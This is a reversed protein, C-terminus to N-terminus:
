LFSRGRDVHSVHPPATLVYGQATNYASFRIITSDGLNFNNNLTFGVDYLKTPLDKGPWVNGVSEWVVTLYKDTSLDSDFDETDNVPQLDEKIRDKSLVYSFNDWTLKKSDYHIRLGLGTLSNNGDSVDYNVGLTIKNGAIASDPINVFIQQAKVDVVWPDTNNNYECLNDCGNGNPDNNADTPDNPDLGNELEWVDPMGDGDSDVDSGGNTEVTLTGNRITHSLSISGLDNSVAHESKILNSDDAAFNIDYSDIAMNSAAKLNLSLLTGASGSFTESSSYTIIAIGNGNPGSFPLSDLTFNNSLLGGREVSTVSLGDPLLIRANVGAYNGGSGLFNLKLTATGGPAISTSGLSLEPTAAKSGVISIMLITLIIILSIQLKKM